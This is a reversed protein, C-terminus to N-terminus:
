LFLGFARLEISLKPHVDLMGSLGPGCCGQQLSGSIEDADNPCPQFTAEQLQLAEWVWELWQLHPFFLPASVGYIRASQSWLHLVLTQKLDRLPNQLLLIGAFPVPFSELARQNSGM